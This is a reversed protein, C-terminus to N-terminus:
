RTAGVARAFIWFPGIFLHEFNKLFAPSKKEFVLHGAFQFVWGLVFLGVLVEWPWDRALFYGALCLLSFPIGLRWNLTLYWVSVAFWLVLGLDLRWGVTATGFEVKALLAPIALTLIPIGVYHTWKNLPHQHFSAYDAFYRDLRNPLTTSM